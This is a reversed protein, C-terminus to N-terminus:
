QWLANDRAEECIRQAEVRPPLAERIRKRMSIDVMWPFPFTVSLQLIDLPVDPPSNQKINETSVVTRSSEAFTPRSIQSLAGFSAGFSQRTNEECASESSLSAPIYLEQPIKIKLLEPALLPHPENVNQQYVEALAEELHRVRQGLSYIKDHLHEAGALVFRTTMAYPNIYSVEHPCVFCVAGAAEM